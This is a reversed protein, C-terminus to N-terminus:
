PKEVPKIPTVVAERQEPEAPKAQAPAEPKPIPIIPAPKAPERAQKVLTKAAPRSIKAVSKKRSKPRVAKRPCAVKFSECFFQEPGVTAGRKRAEALNSACMIAIAIVLLRTVTMIDREADWATCCARCANRETVFQSIPKWM